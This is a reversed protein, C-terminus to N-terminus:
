DTVVGKQLMVNAYIASEGTAIIAYATKAEDYFAFREINGIADAGREDHKAVIEKYTDWIPTEVKGVDGPMLQMLNVPKEVYTDLPFVQLIADLIEPVGHGDCRIVISDKGMSEAPFNGDAIVIRDSHGMEALVMLLEPSLIKPIGKLMIMDEESKLYPAGQLASRERNKMEINNLQRTCRDTLRAHETILM